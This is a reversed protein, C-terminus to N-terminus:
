ESKKKQEDLDSEHKEVAKEHAAEDGSARKSLEQLRSERGYLTIHDGSLLKLDSAPAGIYGKGPREVGLVLVGEDALDLEDITKNILWTDEKIDLEVIRYDERLNLLDAYDRLDLKTYKALLREIMPTLLNHFTKSRTLLILLFVGAILVLFRSLTTEGAGVFSLLLTAISTVAGISGLRILITAVRRREPYKVISEAETTTYGAGSFASLAQFKSVEESLGTMLFAITGIRIILLSLAVVLLLSGVAIM